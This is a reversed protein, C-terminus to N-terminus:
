VNVFATAIYLTAIFGYRQLVPFANTFFDAFGDDFTLIVPREPLAPRGKARANIFQTVSIPTYARQHLYAMHKAFLAQPVALPRYKRTAYDSISHYMLIPVKKKETRAIM